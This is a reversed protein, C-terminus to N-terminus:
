PTKIKRRYSRADLSIMAMEISNIAALNEVCPLEQNLKQLRDKVIALLCENTLGNINFGNGADGIQFLIKDEFGNVGKVTYNRGNKGAFVTIGFEDQFIITEAVDDGIREM